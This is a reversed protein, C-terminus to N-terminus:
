IDKFACIRFFKIGNHEIPVGRDKTNFRYNPEPYFTFGHKILNIFVKNIDTNPVRLTTLLISKNPITPIKEVIKDDCQLFAYINYSDKYVRHTEKLWYDEYSGNYEPDKVEFYRSERLKWKDEFLKKEDWRQTRSEPTHSINDGVNYYRYIPKRILAMKYQPTHYKVRYWFDTDNYFDWEGLYGGVEEWLKKTYVRCPGTNDDIEPNRLTNGKMSYGRIFDAGTSEICKTVEEIYDPYLEDDDMFFAIYKTDVLQHSQNFAPTQGVKTENVVLTFDYTKKYEELIELTRDTGKDCVVLLKYNDSTQNFISDLARAIYKEGQYVPLTITINPM